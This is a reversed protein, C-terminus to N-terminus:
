ESNHRRGESDGLIIARRCVGCMGPASSQDGHGGKAQAVRVAEPPGYVATFCANHLAHGCVPMVHPREGSLRYSLPELCVPCSASDMQAKSQTSKSQGGSGSRGQSQSFNHHQSPSPPLTSFPASPSPPGNGNPNTRPDSRSPSITRSRDTPSQATSSQHSHHVGSRSTGSPGAMASTSTSAKSSYSPGAGNGGAQHPVDEGMMRELKSRGGPMSGQANELGLGQSKSGGNPFGHISNSPSDAKEKGKDRDGSSNSHSSSKDKGTKPRPPGMLIDLGSMIRAEHEKRKKEKDAATEELSQNGKSKSSSGFPMKWGGSSNSSEGEKGKAMELNPQSNGRNWPEPTTSPTAFQARSPSSASSSISSQQQLEYDPIPSREKNRSVSRPPELHSSQSSSDYREKNELSHNSHSAAGKDKNHNGPGSKLSSLDTEGSLVSNRSGNRRL